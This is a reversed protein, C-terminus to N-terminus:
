EIHLDYRAEHVTLMARFLHEGWHTEYNYRWQWAAEALHDLTGEQWLTLGYALDGYVDSLDDFLMWARFGDESDVAGTDSDSAETAIENHWQQLQECDDVTAAHISRSIGARQDHALDLEDFEPHEKDTMEMQVPLIAQHLRSLLAELRGYLGAPKGDHLKEIFRCYEDAVEAFATLAKM